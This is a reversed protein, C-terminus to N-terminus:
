FRLLLRSLVNDIFVIALIVVVPSIDVNGITPIFRGVLLLLPEVLRYVWSVINAVFRNSLNVIRFTCMLSLVVYCIVVWYALNLLAKMLLILPVVIVDM